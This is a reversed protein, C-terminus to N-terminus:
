IKEDIIDFIDTQPSIFLNLQNEVPLGGISSKFKQLEVHLLQKVVHGKTTNKSTAYLKLLEFDRDSVSIAIRHKRKKDHKNKVM